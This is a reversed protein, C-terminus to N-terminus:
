GSKSDDEFAVVALATFLVGWLLPNALLSAADQASAVGVSVASVALAAGIAAGIAKKSMRM